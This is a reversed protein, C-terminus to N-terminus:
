YVACYSNRALRPLCIAHFFRSSARCLTREFFSFATPSNLAAFLLILM